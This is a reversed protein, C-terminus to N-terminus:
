WYSKDIARSPPRGKPKVTTKNPENRASPLDREQVKSPGAGDVGIADLGAHFVEEFIRADEAILSNKV